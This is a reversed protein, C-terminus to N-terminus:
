HFPAQSTIIKALLIRSPFEGIRLSSYTQEPPLFKIGVTTLSHPLNLSAAKTRLKIPRLIVSTKM